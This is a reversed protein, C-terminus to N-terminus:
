KTNDRYTLDRSSNTLSIGEDDLTAYLSKMAVRRRKWFFGILCLFIISVWAGLRFWYGYGQGQQCPAVEDCLPARRYEDLNDFYYIGGGHTGPGFMLVLTDAVTVMPDPQDSFEFYFRRWTPADQSV